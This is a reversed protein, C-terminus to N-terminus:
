LSVSNEAAYRVTVFCIYIAMNNQLPEKNRTQWVGGLSVAPFSQSNGQPPM